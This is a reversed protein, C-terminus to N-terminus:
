YAMAWGRLLKRELARARNRWGRSGATRAPDAAKARRELDESFIAFALRRGSVAGIYGALGRVYNLTGTKAVAWSRCSRRRCLGAQGAPAIRAAKSCVPKAGSSMSAM